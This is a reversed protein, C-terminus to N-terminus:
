TQTKKTDLSDHLSHKLCLRQMRIISTIKNYITPSQTINLYINSLLYILIALFALGRDALYLCATSHKRNKSYSVLRPVLCMSVLQM